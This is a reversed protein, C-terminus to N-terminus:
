PTSFRRKRLSVGCQPCWELEKRVQHHCSPCMRFNVAPQFEREFRNAIFWTLLCMVIMLLSFGVGMMSLLSMMLGIGLTGITTTQEAADWVVKGSLWVLLAAM